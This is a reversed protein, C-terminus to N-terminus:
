DCNASILTDQISASTKASAVDWGFGKGEVEAMQDRVAFRRWGTEGTIDRGSAEGCVAGNTERVNRFQVGGPYDFKSAVMEQARKVEPSESCGALAVAFLLASLRM